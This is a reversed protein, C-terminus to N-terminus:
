QVERQMEPGPEDPDISILVGSDQQEQPKEPDDSGSSEDPTVASALLELLRNLKADIQALLEANDQAQQEDMAKQEENAAAAEPTSGEDIAQQQRESGESQEEDMTDVAGILARKLREKFTSLWTGESCDFVRCSPGARGMAVLAIHNGRILTQVASGAGTSRYEAEYGLSVERSGGRRIEAAADPDTILLDALLLNSDKGEGRRVNFAHGAAKSINAPGLMEHGIIVPKNEFSAVTEPAFLVAEPKEVTIIGDLAPLPAGSTDTLEDAETYVYPGTRALAAGSCVLYGEPTEYMSPGLQKTVLVRNM